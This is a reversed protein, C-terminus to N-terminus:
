TTKKPVAAHADIVAQAAEQPDDTLLILDLDGPSIKKEGLVRSQLWRILGAWYHRGFM